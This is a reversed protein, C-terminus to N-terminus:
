RRDDIQEVQWQSEEVYKCAGDLWRWDRSHGFMVVEFPCVGEVVHIPFEGELINAKISYHGLYLKLDPIECVIRYSGSKRCMPNESDVAWLQAVPQLHADMIQFAFGASRIPTPTSIEFTVRMPKGNVQTNNPESTQLEVRTITPSDPLAAASYTGERLLGDELYAAIVNQPSDNLVLQGHKMLFCRKTLTSIAHMNHSVFLVARGQKKSVEEM